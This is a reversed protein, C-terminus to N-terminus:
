PVFENELVPRIRTGMALPANTNGVSTRHLTEGGNAAWEMQHVKKGKKCRRLLVVLIDLLALLAFGGVLSGVVIWVRSNGKRGFNPPPAVVNPALSPAISEVSISFHGQQTASCVNGSLVNDFQV